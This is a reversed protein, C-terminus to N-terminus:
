SSWVFLLHMQLAYLFASCAQGGYRIAGSATQAYATLPNNQLANLFEFFAHEPTM